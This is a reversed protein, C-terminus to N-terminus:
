PHRGALMLPDSPSRSLAPRPTRRQARRHVYTATPPPSPPLSYFERRLIAFSEKPRLISTPANWGGWRYKKLGAALMTLPGTMGPLADAIPHNQEMLPRLLSTELPRYSFVALLIGPTESTLVTGDRELGAFIRFSSPDTVNLLGWPIRLDITNTQVNAHWEALPDYDPGKPDLTGYRLIGRDYREPAHYEGDPAYGPQNTELIQAEFSGSDMVQPKWALKPVLTTQSPIGEVPVIRFPNYSSAIWIHSAEPGGLHIAYTMGMPFRVPAICPLTTLGATGPATALGILYNVAHWDPQGDRDYDLKGVVLRLYLFGQDAEVYLAKLDRVSDYHDGLPQLLGPSLEAYLPPSNSWEKPGGTLRHTSRHDSDAALLGYHQAPDMFDTWYIRRDPSAALDSLLWSHRFWTDVWEFVFGGAAGAEYINHTFRALLDGQQQETHGGENFGAPSFHSIGLSTSVGYDTIVLPLGRHHRKLDRLYGLFPNSGQDDRVQQYGPDTSIFDPFFPFVSYAAFYGAPFRDRSRLHTPDLSVGDDNDFPAARAAAGEGHGRRVAPEALYSKGTPHRLPDLTPWNLLAIPHQWNYRIEEYEAAENVMLALFIETPTGAPVEVYKGPYSRMDPHSRDNGSVVHSPWTQGILLGAVWPSVDHTYLGGPHTPTAGVDGQGHLVDLTERIEKQCAEYYPRNFLDNGPPDGFAIGQLFHLRPLSPSQNWQFLARYFAPPMITYVRLTNAGLDTIRQFWDKYVGSDTVSDSPFHGPLTATLNVGKLYVPTWGSDTRWAFHEGEVRAPYMLEQARVLPQFELNAEAVDGALNYIERLNKLAVPDDKRFTLAIRFERAAQRNLGVERYLTAWALHADATEAHRKRLILLLAAAEEYNKVAIETYAYGLILDLTKPALKHARQFIPEASKADGLKLYNWGMLTLIGTNNPDIRHARRLHELSRAYQHAKYEAVAATYLAGGDPKFYFEWLSVGAFLVVM